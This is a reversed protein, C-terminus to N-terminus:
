PSGRRAPAPSSTATSSRGRGTSGSPRSARTAKRAGPRPSTLALERVTATCARTAEANPLLTRTTSIRKFTRVTVTRAPFARDRCMSRPSISSVGATPPTFSSRPPNPYRLAWVVTGDREFVRRGLADFTAFGGDGYDARELPGAVVHTVGYRSLLRRAVEPDAGRYLQAVDDRRTGADHGWQLEHGAWGLVTARGSFTSIRAHGRESYDDGVAELVV